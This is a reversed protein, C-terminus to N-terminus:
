LVNLSDAFERGIDYKDTLSRKQALLFAVDKQIAEVLRSAARDGLCDRALKLRDQLLAAANSLIKHLRMNDPISEAIALFSERASATEGATLSDFLGREIRRRVPQFFLHEGGEGFVDALEHHIRSLSHSYLKFVLDFLNRMEEPTDLDSEGPPVSEVLGNDMLKFMSRAAAYEGRTFLQMTEDVRHKGDILSLMAVDDASLSVEDGVVLPVSRIRLISEPPPLSERIRNWEDFRRAGEMMVTTTNIETTPSNEPPAEGEIFQFEGDGWVFLSYIIEEVQRRLADSLGRPDVLRMEIVIEGLRKKSSRQKKLVAELQDASIKGQRVLLQGLRDEEDAASAAYIVQGEHFFIQKKQQGRIMLLAGTKKGTSILQLIDGFTVTLLNGAFSM